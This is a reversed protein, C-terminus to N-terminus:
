DIRIFVPTKQFKTLATQFIVETRVQLICIEGRLTGENNVCWKGVLNRWCNVFTMSGRAHVAIGDRM